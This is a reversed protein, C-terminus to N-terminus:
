LQLLLDLALLTIELEDSTKVRSRSFHLFVVSKEGALHYEM